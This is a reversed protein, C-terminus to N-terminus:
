VEIEHKETTIGTDRRKYMPYGLDDISTTPLFPKPYFKMCKNNKMCPSKPNAEGCPGYIMYKNVADYLRLYLEPHPLETSIVRDIDTGARLKNDNTLWLLIHAHPLCRKQFEITYM